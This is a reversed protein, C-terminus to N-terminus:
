TMLFYVMAAGAIMGVFLAMMMALIDVRLVVESQTVSNADPVQRLESGDIEFVACLSMVSEPAAHGTKEIRQITRLSMGCADALYQQTWNRQVRLAKIKKAQVQM